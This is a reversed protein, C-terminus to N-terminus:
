LYKPNPRRMRISSRLSTQSPNTKHLSEDNNSHQDRAIFDSANKWYSNKNYIVNNKFAQM